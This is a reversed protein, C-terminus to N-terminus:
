ESWTRGVAVGALGAVADLRLLVRVGVGVVAGLRFVGTVAAEVAM